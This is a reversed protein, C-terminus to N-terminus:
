YHGLSRLKLAIQAKIQLVIHDQHPVLDDLSATNRSRWITYITCAYITCLIHQIKKLQLNRFDMTAIHKFRVGGMIGIRHVM